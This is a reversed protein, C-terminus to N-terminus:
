LEIIARIEMDHNELQSVTGDSNVKYTGINTATIYATFFCKSM